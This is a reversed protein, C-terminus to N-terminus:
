PTAPRPLYSITITGTEGRLQNGNVARVVVTVDLASADETEACVLRLLNGDFPDVTFHANRILPTGATATGNRQEDSRPDLVGSKIEGVDDGPTSCSWRTRGDIEITQIGSENDAATSALIIRRDRAVGSRTFGTSPIVESGVELGDSVRQYVVRIELFSPPTTDNRIDDPTPVCSSTLVCVLLSGLCRHSASMKRWM